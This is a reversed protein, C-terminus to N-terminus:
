QTAAPAPLAVFRRDLKGDPHASCVWFGKLPSGDRNGRVRSCCRSTVLDADRLHQENLGHWHGSYTARLNLKALRDLVAGANLPRYEVGEALPFHTFVFTPVHADLKPINADLFDLTVPSVNTRDFEVGQTTDLGIFQWGGHTFTYNLSGPFAADYHARDNLSFHDHNGPVVHLPCGLKQLIPALGTYQAAEGDNAVDGAILCFAAQPASAKMLAVVNEFFPTCEADFFHLDNVAIFTFGSSPEVAHALTATGAAALLRLAHRRSVPHTM